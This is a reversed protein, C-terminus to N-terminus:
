EFRSRSRRERNSFGGPMRRPDNGDSMGVMVMEMIIESSAGSEEGAAQQGRHPFSFAQETALPAGSVAGHQHWCIAM